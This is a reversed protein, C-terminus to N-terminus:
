WVHKNANHCYRTTYWYIHEDTSITSPQHLKEKDQDFSNLKTTIVCSSVKSRYSSKIAQVSVRSSIISFAVQDAQFRRDTHGSKQLPQSSQGRRTPQSLESLFDRAVVTYIKRNYVLIIHDMKQVIDHHLSSSLRSETILSPTPCNTYNSWGESQSSIQVQTPNTTISFESHELGSVIIICNHEVLEAGRLLKWVAIGLELIFTITCPVCASTCLCGRRSTGVSM